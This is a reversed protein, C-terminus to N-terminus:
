SDRALRCFIGSEPHLLAPDPEVDISPRFEPKESFSVFSLIGNLMFKKFFLLLDRFFNQEQRHTLRRTLERYRQGFTTPVPETFTWGFFGNFLPTKVHESFHLRQVFMQFRVISHM